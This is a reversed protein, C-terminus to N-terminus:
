AYGEQRLREALVKVQIDLAASEEARLRARLEYAATQLDELLRPLGEPPTAGAALRDAIRELGDLHVALFRRALPLGAPRAELDDLVAGIAVAIGSLQPQGAVRALRGRAIAVPDPVVPGAPVKAPPPPRPPPDVERVAGDYLLRTAFWALAALLLPIVVGVEAGLWAVLGTALGMVLAANATDGRHGRRLLAVALWPLGLGLLAGLLPSLRGRITEFLVEPVLPLTFLPLLLGRTATRFAEVRAELTDRARRWEEAAPAPM